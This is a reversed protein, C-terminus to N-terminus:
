SQYLITSKKKNTLRQVYNKMVWDKAEKFLGKAYEDELTKGGGGLPDLFKCSQWFHRADTM